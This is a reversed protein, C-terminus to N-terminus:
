RNSPQSSPNQLQGLAYLISKGELKWGSSTKIFTYGKNKFAAQQLDVNKWFVTEDDLVTVENLAIKKDGPSTVSSHINFTSLLVKESSTLGKTSTYKNAPDKSQFFKVIAKQDSEPLTDISNKALVLRRGFPSLGPIKQDLSLNVKVSSKEGKVLANYYNQIGKLSEKQIRSVQAEPMPVKVSTTATPRPVSTPMVNPAKSGTCGTLVLIGSVLLSTLIKKKM